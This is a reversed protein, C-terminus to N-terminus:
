YRVVVIRLQGFLKRNERVGMIHLYLWTGGGSYVEGVATSYKGRYHLAKTPALGCGHGVYSGSNGAQV